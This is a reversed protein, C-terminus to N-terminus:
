STNTVFLAPALPAPVAELLAPIAPDVWGYEGEESFLFRPEGSPVETPSPVEAAGLSEKGVDCRRQSRLLTTPDIEVLAVKKGFLSTLLCLAQPVLVCAKVMVSWSCSVPRRAGCRQESSRSTSGHGCPGQTDSLGWALVESLFDTM